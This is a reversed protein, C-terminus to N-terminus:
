PRVKRIVAPLEGLEGVTAVPTGGIRAIKAEGGRQARFVLLQADSPLVTEVSRVEALAAGSGVVLVVVSAAPTRRSADRAFERLSTREQVTDIRSADDLLSTPTSTRLRLSETEVAMKTRDRIVQVGISALVSVGLEFEDEDAYHEAATAQLLILQSRRTEEYQRVMLKGTRASSRWHVNRLPDGPEYARLAHFSIDHDTITKTVEGELDRVLGAASPKLRATRPHVFLEVPDNWRVTRRLLGLEDGRVSIAPGAVIVARRHTPVAFLEEHEAAPALPPIRFEASDDGVPLEVRSSVSPTSGDNVVVLRGFAREGAVVRRPTLEVAVRYRMRGFVFPVAVLVAGALTASLFAFEVWGFVLAVLGAVLAAALVLWGITSIVGTVPRVARAVRRGGAAARAGLAALTRGAGRGVTGLAIRTQSIRGDPRQDTATM